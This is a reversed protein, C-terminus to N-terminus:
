VGAWVSIRCHFGIACCTVTQLAFCSHMGYCVQVAQQWRGHPNACCSGGPMDPGQQGPLVKHISSIYAFLGKAKTLPWVLGESAEAGCGSNTHGRGAEPQDLFNQSSGTGEEWPGARLPPPLESHCSKTHLVMQPRAQKCPGGAERCHCFGGDRLSPPHPSSGQSRM